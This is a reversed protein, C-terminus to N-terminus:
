NARACSLLCHRCTLLHVCTRWNSCRALLVGWMCSCALLKACQVIGTTCYLVVVVCSESSNKSALEYPDLYVEAPLVQFLAVQAHLCPFCSPALVCLDHPMVNTDTRPLVSMQLQLWVRDPLFMCITLCLMHSPHSVQSVKCGVGESLNSVNAVSYM